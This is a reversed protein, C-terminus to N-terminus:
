MKKVASKVEELMQKLEKEGYFKGNKVVASISKTNDIDELPNKKLLMLNAEKGIAISGMSKINMMQAPYLTAMRLVELTPIGAQHLLQLEEHMSFGGITFPNSHDSGAVLKAGRDYLKKVLKLREPTGTSKESKKYNLRQKWKTLEKPPFYQLQENYVQSLSDFNPEKYVALTPCNWVGNEVTLDLDKETYSESHTITKFNFTIYGDLHEISSQGSQVAKTVTISNPVHGVVPTNLKKGVRLIEDYVPESLNQYIKFFHYGFDKMKQLAPEVQHVSDLIFSGPWVPPNGDIIPTTCYLTPGILQNKVIKNNVRLLSQEGWMVRAATIGKALLLKNEGDYWIHSHADILGPMCYHGKGDIRQCSEPVKLSGDPGFAVIKGEKLYISHALLTTDHGMPLLQVNEILLEPHTIQELTEGIYTAKDPNILVNQADTFTVSINDFHVTGTANGLAAIIKIVGAEKPVPLTIEQRHWRTTGVANINKEPYPLKTYLDTAYNVTILAREWPESGPVVSDCKLWGSLTITTAGDPISLWQHLGVWEKKATTVTITSKGNHRKGKQSLTGSYAGGWLNWGKLGEEFSGNLLFNNSLALKLCVFLLLLLKKM